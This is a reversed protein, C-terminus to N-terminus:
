RAERVKDQYCVTRFGCSRCKESQMHEVDPPESQRVCRRVETLLDRVLDRDRASYKVKYMGRCNVVYGCPVYVRRCKELLYCYSLVQAVHSDYVVTSYSSKLEYVYAEESDTDLYVLDIHGIFGLEDDVVEVESEIWPEVRLSRLKDRIMNVYNRLAVHAYTGILIKRLLKRDVVLIPVKSQALNYMYWFRRPCYVYTAVDGVNIFGPKRERSVVIYLNDDVQRVTIERSLVRLLESVSLRSAEAVKQVFPRFFTYPIPSRM